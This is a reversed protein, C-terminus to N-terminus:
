FRHHRSVSFFSSEEPVVGAARWSAPISNKSPSSVIIPSQLNDFINLSALSPRPSLTMFAPFQFLTPCGVQPSLTALPSLSSWFHLPVIPTRQGVMPSTIFISPTTLSAFSAHQQGATSVGLQSPLKASPVLSPSPFVMSCITPTKLSLPNPKNKGTTAHHGETTGSGSESMGINRKKEESTVLPSITRRKEGIIGSSKVALNFGSATMYPVTVMVSEEDSDDRCGIDDDDCETITIAPPIVKETPKSAIPSLSSLRVSNVSPPRHDEESKVSVPQATPIIIIPERSYNSSNRSNNRCTDVEESSSMSWEPHHAVAAPMMLNSVSHSIAAAAAASYMSYGISVNSVGGAFNTLSVTGGAGPVSIAFAPHIDSPMRSPTASAPLVTLLIQPENGDGRTVRSEAATTAAVSTTPHSKKDYEYPKFSTFRPISWCGEAGPTLHMEAVACEGISSSSTSTSEAKGVEPYSVFQYVFKKGVVKRIINKDYYYRLARSLKDYNMNPKNKRIGWLRAVDEANLLKFEGATETWQIISRHENGVLLELLFQWLTINSEMGVLAVDVM